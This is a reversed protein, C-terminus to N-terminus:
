SWVPLAAQAHALSIILRGVPCSCTEDHLADHSSNIYGNLVNISAAILNMAKKTSKMTVPRSPWLIVKEPKSHGMYVDNSLRRGM